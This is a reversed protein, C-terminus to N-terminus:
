QTKPKPTTAAESSGPDSPNNGEACPHHTKPLAQSGGGRWLSWVVPSPLPTPAALTAQAGINHVPSYMYTQPSWQQLHPSLPQLGLCSQVSSAPDSTGRNRSGMAMPAATVLLDPDHTDGGGTRQAPPEAGVGQLCPDCASGWHNGQDWRGQRIWTCIYPIRWCEPPSLLPVKTVM